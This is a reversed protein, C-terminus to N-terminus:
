RREFVFLTNLGLQFRRRALPEWVPPAFVTATDAPDFGHHQDLAMGDVLRLAILVRLIRDVVPRPVSLIVRGGPRLLRACASAVGQQEDRPVHELVALMTIADYGDGPPVDDPFRGAILRYRPRQVDRPLEPDIGVGGAIRGDLREFLAGDACGVDLVTAGPPVYRRAKEIRWRQLLRDLRKV